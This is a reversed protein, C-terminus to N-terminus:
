IVLREAIVDSIAQRPRFDSVTDVRLANWASSIMTVQSTGSMRVLIRQETWQDCSAPLPSPQWVQPDM